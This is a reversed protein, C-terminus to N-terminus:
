LMPIVWVFVAYISWERCSFRVNVERVLLLKDIDAVCATINCRYYRYDIGINSDIVYGHRAM